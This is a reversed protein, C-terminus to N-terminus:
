HCAQFAAYILQDVLAEQIVSATIAEGDPHGRILRSVWSTTSATATNRM